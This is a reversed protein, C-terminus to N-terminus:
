FYKFVKTSQSQLSVDIKSPDNRCLVTKPENLSSFEIKEIVPSVLSGYVLCLTLQATQLQDFNDLRENSENLVFAGYINLPNGENTVIQVQYVPKIPKKLKVQNSEKQELQHNYIFLHGKTTVATILAFPNTVGSDDNTSTNKSISCATMVADMFVPGENITFSAIASSVTSNTSTTTKSSKLDLKWANLIRDNQATSIFLNNVALFIMRNIDNSHGTFSKFKTKTDLDWVTITKSATILYKSTSDISLSTIATKSAKWKARLKADILSWEIIMGDDSCSYLSDKFQPCWCIDNVKDLHGDTHLQSHLSAKSLSYLLVTGQSTGIAIM